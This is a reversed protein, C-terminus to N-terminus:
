TAWSRGSYNGFADNMLMDQFPVMNSSWIIKNISTVFVQSLAFAIRQRLQDPSTVANALFLGGFGGQSGISNYNALKAMAFQENLCGQFGVSQVHAADSPTPGFAAQELFRRAAAVSVLPNAVGVQISYPQSAVPGNSVVLNGMGSQKAFGTISLQNANVFTSAIPNGNLQATSQAIFGSGTAMASFVGIPLAATSVSTITPPVNSVLTVAAVGQSGSATATITVSPSAPM